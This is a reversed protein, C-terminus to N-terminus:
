RKFFNPFWDPLQYYALMGSGASIFIWMLIKLKRWQFDPGQKLDEPLDNFGDRKRFFLQFYFAAVILGIGLAFYTLKDAETFFRVFIAVFEKLSTLM